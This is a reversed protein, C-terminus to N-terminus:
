FKFTQVVKYAQLLVFEWSTKVMWTNLSSALNPMSNLLRSCIQKVQFLGVFVPRFLFYNTIQEESIRMSEKEQSWEKFLLGIYKQGLKFRM